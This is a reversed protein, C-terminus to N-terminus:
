VIWNQRGAWILPIGVQCLDSTFDTADGDTSGVNKNNYITIAWNQHQGLKSHTTENELSNEKM